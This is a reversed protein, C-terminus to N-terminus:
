PSSRAVPKFVGQSRARRTRCAASSTAFHALTIASAPMLGHLGGRAPCEMGNHSHPRFASSVRLINFYEDISIDIMYLWVIPLEDIAAVVSRLGAFRLRVSWLSPLPGARKEASDMGELASGGVTGDAPV